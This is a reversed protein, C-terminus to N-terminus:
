HTPSLQRFVQEINIKVADSVFGNDRFVVRNPERRALEKVLEETVGTDFCAVLANDDVFFVTKDQVTERRIPLTLDGGWDLLVQFLLDEASRNPKINDVTALLDAQDVEDPRYYIDHMNSGDVKLARFGVDKCWDEHCDGRLIGSGARRIREKGIEAITSLGAQAALSNAEVQEPLQVM